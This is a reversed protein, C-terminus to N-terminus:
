SFLPLGVADFSRQQLLFFISRIIKVEEVFYLVVGSFVGLVDLCVDLMCSLFLLLSSQLYICCCVFVRHNLSTSDYFLLFCLLLRVTSTTPTAAVCSAVGAPWSPTGDCACRARFRHAKRVFVSKWFIPM